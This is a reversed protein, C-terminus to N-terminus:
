QLLQEGVSCKSLENMPNANVGPIKYTQSGKLTNCKLTIDSPHLSMKKLQRVDM